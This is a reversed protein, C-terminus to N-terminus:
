FDIMLNNNEDMMLFIKLLISKKIWVGLIYYLISISIYLVVLTRTPIEIENIGKGQTLFRGDALNIKKKREEGLKKEKSDCTAESRDKEAYWLPTEFSVM